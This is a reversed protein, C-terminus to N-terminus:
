TKVKTVVVYSSKYGITATDEMCRSPPLSVQDCHPFLIYLHAFIYANLSKKFFILCSSSIYESQMYLHSKETLM